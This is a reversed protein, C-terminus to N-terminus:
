VGSGVGVGIMNNSGMSLLQAGALHVDGASSSIGLIHGSGTMLLGGVHSGSMASGSGVRPDNLHLSLIGYPNEHNALFSIGGRSSDLESVNAPAKVFGDGYGVELRQYAGTQYQLTDVYITDEDSFIAM